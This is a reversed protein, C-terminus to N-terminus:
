GREGKGQQHGHGLHWPPNSKALFFVFGLVLGIGRTGERGAPRPNRSGKPSSQHRARRRLWFKQVLHNKKPSAWAPNHGRARVHGHAIGAGTLSSLPSGPAQPTSLLLSCLAPSFFFAFRAAASLLLLLLLMIADSYYYRRQARALRTFITWFILQALTGGTLLM